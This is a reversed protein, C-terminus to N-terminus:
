ASVGDIGSRQIWMRTSLKAMARGLEADAGGGARQPNGNADSHPRPNGSDPLSWGPELAGHVPSRQACWRM